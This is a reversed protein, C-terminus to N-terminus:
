GRLGAIGEILVTGGLAILIVMMIVNNHRLMFQKVKALPAAARDGALLYYLVAGLVTFSGVAVFVALAAVTGAADLGARSITASAALTLALNKPNAGALALGLVLTRSPGAREVTAMWPPQQPEAGKRPRKAWQKAALVLLAAGLVIRLVSVTTSADSGSNKSVSGLLLVVVTSVAVLGLVWGLAFLPGNTRARPTSLVIVIAIIPFPSLAVALAIPVLDGLAYNM